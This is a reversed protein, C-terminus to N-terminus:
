GLLELAKKLDGETELLGMIQDENKDIRDRLEESHERINEIQKRYEDLRLQLLRKPEEM